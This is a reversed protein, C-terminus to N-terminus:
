PVVPSVNPVLAACGISGSWRNRAPRGAASGPRLGSEQASDADIAQAILDCGINDILEPYGQKAFGSYHDASGVGQGEFNLGM